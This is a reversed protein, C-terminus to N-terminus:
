TDNRLHRLEREQLDEVGQPSFDPGAMALFQVAVAGDFVSPFANRLWQNLARKTGGVAIPSLFALQAAFETARTLSEGQSVVETVLGIREAERATLRDGTLLYRRAQMLGVALPWFFPGTTSPRGTPVHMDQFTAHEEAVIIDSLLVLALIGGMVPGNVATIVPIDLDLFERIFYRVTNRSLDPGLDNPPEASSNPLQGLSFIDSTGAIVLARIQRDTRLQSSLTALEQHLKASPYRHLDDAGTFTAYAIQGRIDVDLVSYGDTM